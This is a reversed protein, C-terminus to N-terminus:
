TSASRRLPLQALAPSTSSPSSRTCPPPHCPPSPYANQPAYFSPGWAFRGARAGSVSRRQVLKRRTALGQLGKSLPPIPSPLEVLTTYVLAGHVAAGVRRCHRVEGAAQAQESCACPLSTCCLYAPCRAGAHVPPWRGALLGRDVAVGLQSYRYCYGRTAGGVGWGCVCWGGVGWGGWGWGWGVGGVWGGM